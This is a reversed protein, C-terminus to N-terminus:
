DLMMFAHAVHNANMSHFPNGFAFIRSVSKNRDNSSYTFNKVHKLTTIAILTSLLQM